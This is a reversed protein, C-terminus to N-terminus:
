MALIKVETRRNAQHEEKSCDVGNSCKNILKTEGYGKAKMRDPSIGKSVIYEVAEKARRSSLAMNYPDSGRSDTHSSLEIKLNPNETMVLVLKDLEIAADERIDSKNLDYFINDLVFVKGVQVKDLEDEVFVENGKINSTQVRRSKSLYGEKQYEITYDMNRLIDCSFKGLDDSQLQILESNLRNKITINVNEVPTRDEKFVVVGKLSLIHDPTQYIVKELKANQDLESAPIAEEGDFYYQKESRVQYNDIKSIEFYFSGNEDTEVTEIPKGSKDILSVKTNGLIEKTESNFVQGHISRILLSFHYIDDYSEGKKRNSAFYGSGKKVILGFDDKSSNIPYALNEPKDVSDNLDISFLDLGGLGVHGKSAFFLQNSEDVFPFMENESTNIANGLNVPKGWGSKSKKSVYLDTGGFGGPRDSIFYLSKGDKSLSPHGTSYAKDNVSLLKPTSWSDGKKKSYYLKISVVGDKNRKAKNSQSIYNRTLYMELGDSSFCVPGDHYNSTVEKSFLIPDVLNGDAGVQSKYLRLFNQNNWKHNRKIISAKERASSFVVEDKYFAVGFDSEESNALVPKVKYRLSDNMLLKIADSNLLRADLDKSNKLYKTLYKEAKAYKRNSQLARAYNLYDDKEAKSKALLKAYWYEAKESNNILRYSEALRRTLFNNSSDKQWIIEYLEVAEQYSFSEFHKNARELQQANLSFTLLLAGIFLITHTIKRM